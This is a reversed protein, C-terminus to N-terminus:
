KISGIERLRITGPRRGQSLGMCAASDGASCDADSCLECYSKLGEGGLTKAM